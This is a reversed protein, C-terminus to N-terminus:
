KAPIIVRNSRVEDSVFYVYVKKGTKRGWNFSGADNVVRVSGPQYNSQGRVKVMSQLSASVLGTTIGVVTVQRSARAGSIAITATSPTPEPEPTVATTWESWDGWGVSNRARVKFRYAV